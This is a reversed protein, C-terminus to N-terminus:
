STQAAPTSISPRHGLDVGGILGARTVTHHPSRFPRTRMLGSGPPRLGAASHLRTVTLAEDPELPPLIGPLREALISKGAGTEGTLVTHGAGLELEVADAIAFDRIQIHTLM